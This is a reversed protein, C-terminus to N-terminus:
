KQLIFFSSRVLNKGSPRFTQGFINHVRHPYIIFLNQGNPRFTPIKKQEWQTGMLNEVHERGRKKATIGPPHKTYPIGQGEPM